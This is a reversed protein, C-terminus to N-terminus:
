CMQAQGINHLHCKEDRPLLDANTPDMVIVDYHAPHRRLDGAERNNVWSNIWSCILYFMLTGHWQGKRPIWWQGTFEGCLPGTVRFINGKSSTMMDIAQRYALLGQKPSPTCWSFRSSVIVCSKCVHRGNENGPWRHHTHIESVLIPYFYGIWNVSEILIQPCQLYRIILTICTICYLSQSSFVISKAHYPYPQIFLM